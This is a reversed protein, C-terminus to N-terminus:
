CESCSLCTVVANVTLAENSGRRQAAAVAQHATLAAAWWGVEFGCWRQWSAWCAGRPVNGAPSPSRERFMLVRAGEPESVRSASCVMNAMCGGEGVAVITSGTLLGLGTMM